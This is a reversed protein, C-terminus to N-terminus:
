KSEQPHTKKYVELLRKHDVKTYRQTTSLDKHGLLEQISRLDAGNELIHTAFSHRFSHPTATESLGLKRRLNQIKKQFIAAQLVKGRAGLFIKKNITLEFPCFKIYEEIANIVQPLLPVIREKSRKGLIIIHDKGLDNIKISLAESIRLGSGYLLLLIAKDRLEQWNDLKISSINNIFIEVDELSLAKPLTKDSKPSSLKFIVQNDIKEFKSLYKFFNKLTSIARSSSNNSLKANKRNSLWARLDTLNINSILNETIISQHYENLFLFFNNIDILYSIITKNAYNKENILYDSYNQFIVNTNKDSKFKFQNNM